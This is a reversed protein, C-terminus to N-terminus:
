SSEKIYDFLHVKDYANKVIPLNNRWLAFRQIASEFTDLTRDRFSPIMAMLMAIILMAMMIPIVPITISWFILNLKAKDSIKM